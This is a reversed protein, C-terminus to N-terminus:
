LVVGGKSPERFPSQATYYTNGTACPRCLAKANQQVDRRDLVTEGCITCLATGTPPGPMDESKLTVSVDQVRFLESDPMERYAKMKAASEDLEPYWAKAKEWAEQLSVVRLARGTEINVFTAAVKGNDVIKLSRKGVRCGTVTMIADAPCRDIEVIVIFKKRDEGRPDTIGIERLGLMAIRVGVVQGTCLHGHFAAAKDLLQEFEQYHKM